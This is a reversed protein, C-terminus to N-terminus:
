AAVALVEPQTEALDALTDVGAQEVMEAWRLYREAATKTSEAHRFRIDACIRLEVANLDGLRKFTGDGLSERKNLWAMRRLQGMRRANASADAHPRQPEPDSAASRDVMKVYQPLALRLAERCEDDSLRDCLDAAVEYPNVAPHDTVQKRLWASFTADDNM